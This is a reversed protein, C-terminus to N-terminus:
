LLLRSDTDDDGLSLPNYEYSQRVIAMGAPAVSSLCTIQVSGSQPLCRHDTASNDATEGLLVYRVIPPLQSLLSRIHGFRVPGPALSVTCCLGFNGLNAIV